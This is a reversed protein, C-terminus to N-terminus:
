GSCSPDPVWLEVLKALVACEAARASPSGDSTTPEPSCPTMPTAVAGGQM